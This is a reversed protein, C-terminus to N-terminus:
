NRVRPNGSVFYSRGGFMIMMTGVIFAVGCVALPIMLSLRYGPEGAIPPLDRDPGAPMVLQAVCLVGGILGILALIFGTLRM